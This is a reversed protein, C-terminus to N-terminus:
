VVSKRDGFTRAYMEDFDQYDADIQLNALQEMKENVEKLDIVKTEGADQINESVPIEIKKTNELKADMPIKVNMTDDVNQKPREEIEEKNEKEGKEEQKEEKVEETPQEEIKTEKNEEKIDENQKQETEHEIPNNLQKEQENDIKWSSRFLM